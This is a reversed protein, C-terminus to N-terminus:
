GLFKGRQESIMGGIYAIKSRAIMNRRLKVIEAQPVDLIEAITLTPIAPLKSLFREAISKTKKDMLAARKVSWILRLVCGIPNM